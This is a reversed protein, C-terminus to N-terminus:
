RSATVTFPLGERVAVNSLESPPQPRTALLADGAPDATWPKLLLHMAVRLSPSTISIATNCPKCMLVVNLPHDAYAHPINWSGYARKYADNRSLIHGAELPETASESVGCLRCVGHDRIRVEAESLYTVWNRTAPLQTPNGRLVLAAALYLAVDGLAQFREVCVACMPVNEGSISVLRPSTSGCGVCASSGRYFVRYLDGWRESVATPHAALTEALHSLPVLPAIDSPHTTM